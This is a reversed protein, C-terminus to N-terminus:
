AELLLYFVRDCGCYPSKDSALPLLYNYNIHHFNSLFCMGVITLGNSTQVVHNIM